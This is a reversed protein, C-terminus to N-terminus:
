QEASAVPAVLPTIRRIAVRRNERSPSETSVKLYREGYGQTVLNEPPIEFVNTLADAVAEARRDSLVLNAQDTGVADTHGEILFTEAPNRELIRAIADAVGQLKEIESDGISASGFEFNIVDLDIRRMVDRVRASHKVEDLSYLRRVPEVPPQELFRYYRDPDDIRRADLIYEEVPIRLRLPPLDRGPDRWERDRDRDRHRDSAYVMVYERGDPTIRSRRIVDGWRNRITIVKAGNSRTIVERTWGGPLDYYEVDRANRRLRPRDNSEVIVRDGFQIVLRDGLQRLVEAGPPAQVQEAAQPAEVREGEEAALSEVEVPEELEQAQEDSEPPPAAPEAPAQEAAQPQAEGGEGEAPTAEKQSDLVPAADEPLAEGSDAPAQQEETPAAPEDAPAQQDEAPAQEGAPAEEAPAQQEDAPAAPEEEAPAQEEEAPAAPGDAPAQQEDTPAQAPAQQEEAPAEQAPAAPEEEAPAEPEVAPAEEEAPAQEEAPAEQEAPPQQAELAEIQAEIAAREEDTLNPDELRERLEELTVQALLIPAEAAAPVTGSAGSGAGLPAAGLATPGAAMLLALATGTIIRRDITVHFRGTRQIDRRWMFGFDGIKNGLATAAQRRLRL